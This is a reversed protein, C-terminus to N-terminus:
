HHGNFGGLVAEKVVSSTATDGESSFNLPFMVSQCYLSITGRSAGDGGRMGCSLCSSPFSVGLPCLLISIYRVLGQCHGYSTHKIMGIKCIFFSLNSSSLVHDLIEKSHLSM